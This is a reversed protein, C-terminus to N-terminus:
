ERNSDEEYKGNRGEKHQDQRGMYVTRLCLFHIGAVSDM